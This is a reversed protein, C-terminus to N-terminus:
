PWTTVATHRDSSPQRRDTAQRRHCVAGLTKAHELARVLNHHVMRFSRKVLDVFLGRFAGAYPDPELGEGRWLHEM